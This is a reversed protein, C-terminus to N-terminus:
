IRCIVTIVSICSRSSTKNATEPVTSRATTAESPGRVASRRVRVSAATGGDGEVYYLLLELLGGEEVPSAPLFNIICLTFIIDYQTIYLYLPKDPRATVPVISRVTTDEIPVRVVSRRVRVSVVTGGDVQILIRSVDKWYSLYALIYTYHGPM